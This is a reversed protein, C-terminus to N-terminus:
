KEGDWQRDCIWERHLGYGIRKYVLNRNDITITVLDMSLIVWGRFAINSVDIAIRDPPEYGEPFFPQNHEDVHILLPEPILAM